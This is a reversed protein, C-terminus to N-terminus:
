KYDNIFLTTSQLASLEYTALINWKFGYPNFNIHFAQRKNVDAYKEKADADM